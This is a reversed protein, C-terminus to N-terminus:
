RGVAETANPKLRVEQGPRLREGGRIIVQDGDVLGGLIAVRAGSTAGTRVRLREVKNDSGVRFVYTGDVRLILADRDVAVVKEPAQSPLAVEVAAGVVWDGEPVDVRIEMTRSVEDGVPIQARVKTEYIKDNVNLTVDQGDKIFPSLKVPAQAKVELNTVDVLRIIQRGPASYEGAQALRQVVRGPFPAKVETRSLALKAQEHNIRAQALDQKTMLLDNEVEELRSTTTNNTSALERYRKLQSKLFEIRAELRKVQADSRGVQLRFDSADIKAIVDGEKVLTGESAVWEVRGSIQASIRSDNRSVITGPMLVEPAMMASDASDVEVLVAPSKQADQASAHLSAGTFIAGLVLGKMVVNKMLHKM